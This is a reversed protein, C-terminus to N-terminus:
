SVTTGIRTESGSCGSFLSLVRLTGTEEREANWNNFFRDFQPEALVDSNEQKAAYPKCAHKKERNENM